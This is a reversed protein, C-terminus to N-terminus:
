LQVLSSIAALLGLSALVPGYGSSVHSLSGSPVPNSSGSPVPNSGYSSVNKPLRKRVYELEALVAKAYRPDSGRYGRVAAIVTDLSDSTPQIDDYCLGPFEALQRRATILGSEFHDQGSPIETARRKVDLRAKLDSDFLPLYFYLRITHGPYCTDFFLQM